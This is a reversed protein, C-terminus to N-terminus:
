VASHAQTPREVLMKGLYVPGTVLAHLADADSHCLPLAHGLSQFGGVLKFPYAAHVANM